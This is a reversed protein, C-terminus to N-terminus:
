EIIRYQVGSPMVVIGTKTKNEELFTESNAQNEEALAQFAEVQEQRVRAQLDALLTQMEEAGVQPDRGAASDRIAAILSEVDFETSRRQIDVGIDWGVAYSLKGKETDLDQAMASGAFLLLFLSLAFTFRM